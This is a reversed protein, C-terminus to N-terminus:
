WVEFYPGLRLNWFLVLTLLLTLQVRQLRFLIDLIKLVLM